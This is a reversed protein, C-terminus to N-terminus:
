QARATKRQMPHVPHVPHPRQRKPKVVVIPDGREPRLRIGRYGGTRRGDIVPQNTTVLPCAARLKRGFEIQSASVQGSGRCWLQYREYLDNKLVEAEFELVCEEEVFASIPNTIQELDHFTSESSAPRTFRGVAVLRDLGELAWNFIGPREAMLRDALARDEKGLFSKTMRLILMRNALGASNERVSPVENSIILFRVGLYGTWAERNKRDITQSDRGSISLLREVLQASNQGGFRADNVVAASKGILPQLGFNTGLSHLTPFVVNDRGLLATMTKAITGKGSRPPGIMMGIKEFESRGSILYGMFEQLLEIQEVDGDWVSELFALWESPEPANPEYDFPLANVNFLKPTHASLSRDDLSLLGNGM